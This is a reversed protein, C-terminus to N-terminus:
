KLEKIADCLSAINHDQYNNRIYEVCREREQALLADLASHGDAHRLDEMYAIEIAASNDEDIAGACMMQYAAELGDHLVLERAQSEALQKHMQLFDGEREVLADRWEFASTKATALEARLREIEDAARAPDKWQATGNNDYARLVEILDM